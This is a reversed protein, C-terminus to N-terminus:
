NRFTIHKPLSCMHRPYNSSSAPDCQALAAEMGNYELDSLFCTSDTSAHHSSVCWNLAETTSEIRSTTFFMSSEVEFFQTACGMLSSSAKQSVPLYCFDYDVDSHYYNQHFRLNFRFTTLFCSKTGLQLPFAYNRVYNCYTYIFYFNSVVPLSM